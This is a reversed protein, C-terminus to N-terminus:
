TTSFRQGTPWVEANHNMVSGIVDREMVGCTIAALWATDFHTQTNVEVVPRNFGSPGTKFQHHYNMAFWRPRWQLNEVHNNFKDGDLNIPTDFTEHPRSLIFLNAVLLSVSRKYQANDQRLGVVANGNANKTQRLIRGTMDNCVHGTHSVSYNAFGPIGRWTTGDEDVRDLVPAVISYSAIGPIGQLMYM